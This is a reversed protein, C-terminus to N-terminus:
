TTITVSEYYADIARQIGIRRSTAM